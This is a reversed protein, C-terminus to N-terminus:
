DKLYEEFMEKLENKRNEKMQLETSLGDNTLPEVSNTGKKPMRGHLLILNSLSEAYGFEGYGSWKMQMKYLDSLFHALNTQYKNIRWDKIWEICKFGFFISGFLFLLSASFYFAQEM